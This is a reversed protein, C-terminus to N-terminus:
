EDLFYQLFFTAGTTSGYEVEWDDDYVSSPSLVCDRILTRANGVVINYEGVPFSSDSWQLRIYSGYTDRTFDSYSLSKVLVNGERIGISINELDDPYSSDVIDLLVVINLTGTYEYITIRFGNNQDGAIAFDYRPNARPVPICRSYTAGGRSNKPVNTFSGGTIPIDKTAFDEGDVTMTVPYSSLSATTIFSIPIDITEIDHTLTLTFVDGSRSTSGTYASPVTPNLSYNISKPASETSQWNNGSNLTFYNYRIPQSSGWQALVEETVSSPRLGDWDNSDDWVVKVGVITRRPYIQVGDMTISTVSKDGAKILKVFDILM